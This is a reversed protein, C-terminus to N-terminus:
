HHLGPRVLGQVPQLSPQVQPGQESVGRKQAQSSVDIILREAEGDDINLIFKTLFEMM